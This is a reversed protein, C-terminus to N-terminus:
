EDSPVSIDNYRRTGQIRNDTVLLWGWLGENLISRNLPPSRLEWVPDSETGYNTVHQALVNRFLAQIRTNSTLDSRVYDRWTLGESDRIGRNGIQGVTDLFERMYASAENMTEFQAPGVIDQFLQSRAEPTASNMRALASILAQGGIVRSVESPQGAGVPLQNLVERDSGTITFDSASLDSLRQANIMRQAIETISMLRVLIDNKKGSHASRLEEVAKRIEAELQAASQTPIGQLALVKRHTANSFQANAGTLIYDSAVEAPHNGRVGWQYGFFVLVVIALNVIMKKTM